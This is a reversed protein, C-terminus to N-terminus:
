SNTITVFNLMCRCNVEASPKPFANFLGSDVFSIDAEDTLFIKTSKELSNMLGARTFEDMCFDANQGNAINIARLVNRVLNTIDSKGYALYIFFFNANEIRVLIKMCSRAVIINYLNLPIRYRGDSSRLVSSFELTTAVINFLAIASSLAEMRLTPKWAEIVKVVGESFMTNISIRLEAARLVNAHIFKLNITSM